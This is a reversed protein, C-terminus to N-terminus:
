NWNDAKGLRCAALVDNLNQMFVRCKRLYDFPPLENLESVTLSASIIQINDPISSPTTRNM